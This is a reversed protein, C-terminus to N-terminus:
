KVISMTRTITTTGAHLRYMYVGNPLSESRFTFHYQGADEVENVPVAVVEGISNVIDVTVMQRSPIDYRIMTSPNFPNPYNQSLAYDSAVIGLEKVSSVLTSNTFSVSDLSSNTANTYVYLLGSVTTDAKSPKFVIIITDSAGPALSQAGTASIVSYGNDGLFKLSDINIPCAGSNTVLAQYIVSDGVHM